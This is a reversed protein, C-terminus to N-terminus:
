QERMVVMLTIDDFQPTAGMWNHVDSLLAQHLDHAGESHHKKLAEQLRTLGYFEESSNQADTIGDTYLVLADGPEIEVRMREWRADDFVGLPIGTHELQVVGGNSAKILFAPHHGASCYTFTGDEPNLIGYFLTIFLGGHTDAMIRRNTEAMALEPEAPHDAAFTRWLSRSLAMYLAASTGKDTVDAIVLGLKGGPLSLYDYFDGSTEHAPELSVTLRWGPLEPPNEPLLSEQVQRAKKLERTMQAAGIAQAHHRAQIVLLM